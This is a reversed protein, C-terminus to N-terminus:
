VLWPFHALSYLHAYQRMIHCALPIRREVGISIVISAPAEAGLHKSCVGISDMLMHIHMRQLFM